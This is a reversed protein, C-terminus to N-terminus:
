TRNDHERNITIVRCQRDITSTVYTACPKNQTQCASLFFHAQVFSCEMSMDTCSSNRTSESMKATCTRYQFIHRISLYLQLYMSRMSCSILRNSICDVDSLVVFVIRISDHSSYINSKRHTLSLLYLQHAVDINVIVTVYEVHHPNM